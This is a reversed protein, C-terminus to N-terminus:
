EILPRVGSEAIAESDPVSRSVYWVSRWVTAWCSISKSRVNEDMNEPLIPDSCSPMSPRVWSWNRSTKLVPFPKM